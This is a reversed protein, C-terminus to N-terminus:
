MSYKNFAYPQQNTQNTTKNTKIVEHFPINSSISIKKKKKNQQIKIKTKIKPDKYKHQGISNKSSTAIGDANHRIDSVYWQIHDM